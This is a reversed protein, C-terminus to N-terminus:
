KWKKTWKYLDFSIGLSSWTVDGAECRYFIRSSVNDRKRWHYEAGIEFLFHTDDFFDAHPIPLSVNFIGVSLGMGMFLAWRRDDRFLPLYGRIIPEWDVLMHWDKYEKKQYPAFKVDFDLLSFEVFKWRKALGGIRFGVSQLACLDVFFRTTKWTREGGEFYDDLFGQIGRKNQKVLLTDQIGKADIVVVVERQVWENNDALDLKLLNDKQFAEATIWDADDPYIHFGWNQVNTHPKVLMYGKNGMLFVSRYHPRYINVSREGGNYPLSIGELKPEAGAQEVLVTIRKKEVSTVVDFSATRTEAWPNPSCNIEISEWVREVKLWDCSYEVAWEDNSNVRIKNNEGGVSGFRVIDSVDGSVSYTNFNTEGEFQTINITKSLAKGSVVVVDSRRQVLQNTSCTVLLSDGLKDIRIWSASTSCDWKFNADVPLIQQGGGGEFSLEEPLINLRPPGEKQKVTFAQTINKESKLVIVGKRIEARPNAYVNFIVKNEDILVDLVQMWDPWQCVSWSAPTKRLELVFKGGHGDCELKDQKALFTANKEALMKKCINLEREVNGDYEGCADWVKQYYRIANRYDKKDKYNRATKLKLYCDDQAFSNVYCFGVLMLFCMCYKMSFCM